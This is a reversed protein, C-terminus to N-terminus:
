RRMRAIFPAAIAEFHEPLYAGYIAAMAADKDTASEYYTRCMAAGVGYGVQLPWDPHEASRPGFWAAAGDQPERLIPEFQAWLEAKHAAVYADRDGLRWGSARWTLFDACGERLAYALNTSREPTTYISRYNDLGQLQRQYVHTMEHVVVQGIDTFRQRGGAGTAFESMDVADSMALVDIAVAIFFRQGEPTDVFGPQGGATQNGVIFYLPVPASGAPAEATLRALARRFEPERARLAPQLTRLHRFFRPRRTIEAVMDEPTLGFRGAFFHLAPSGTEVYRQMATLPEEGGDIAAMAAAFRDLDEYVFTAEVPSPEDTTPSATACAACLLAASLILHKM